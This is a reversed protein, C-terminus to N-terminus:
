AAHFFEREVARLDDESPEQEEYPDDENLQALIEPDPENTTLSHPHHTSTQLMNDILRETEPSYPNASALAQCTKTNISVDVRKDTQVKYPKM